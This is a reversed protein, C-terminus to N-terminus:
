IVSNLSELVGWKVIVNAPGYIMRLQALQEAYKEHFRELEKGIDSPRIETLTEELDDSVAFREVDEEDHDQPKYGIWIHTGEEELEFKLPGFPRWMAERFQDELEWQDIDEEDLEVTFEEPRSGCLRCSKDNELDYEKAHWSCAPNSCRRRTVTLRM